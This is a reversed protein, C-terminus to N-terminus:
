HKRCSEMFCDLFAENVSKNSLGRRRCLSHLEEVGSYPFYKTDLDSFQPDNAKRLVENRDEDAAVIVWRIDRLQPGLKSFKNMRNLGSTIGTTHEVEMVAPMLKGNKFWICDILKAANIADPYSALVKEDSLKAIVGDLSGIHKDGYKYGKDNSAIWTRFGLKVGIEILAIQIQLHRRQVDISLPMQDEEDVGVLADYTVIQSPIESIASVGKYEQMVGKQHPDNPRWILHKHGSKIKTSDHILEIRGPKCWYFESTHALLAELVSRTNYSSGFVREFNVPVNDVIANAARWLMEKSITTQDEKGDKTKRRIYIPGEPEECRIIQIKTETKQSVYNFWQNQSLGAIARLLNGATLSNRM